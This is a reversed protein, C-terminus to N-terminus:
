DAAEGRHAMRYTLVQLSEALHVNVVEMRSSQYQLDVPAFNWVAAVGGAELRRMADQAASAPLAIVAIDVVNEQLFRELERVDYVKAGGIETGIREEAIDFLAMIRFGERAFTEYRAVASGISGAGLIIVQYGRDLGLEAGIRTKLESVSYGFGQRGIGGFTNFDQRIQSPTQHLREGLEKSSVQRVGAAELERLHRYYAPLRRIAAESVIKASM